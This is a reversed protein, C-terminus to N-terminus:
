MAYQKLREADPIRVTRGQVEVLGEAALEHLIRSFHEQTLNLRSAVIGKTTPLTVELAGAPAEGSAFERLLYGIVRQTGSRMSYAELDGMLHHLRRSLGAIIRRAFKPDRELEEFVAEKQVYLLLTDALVQATVVHPREMFMVAEGFSAGPGIIEVVKEDGKSSIFALKVQGYVVLYFGNAPDSRHFLIEGRTARVQRTQEAMRALQDPALEKFLPLNALFAQAKIPSTAM